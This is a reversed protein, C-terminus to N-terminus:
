GRRRLEITGGTRRAGFGALLAASAHNSTDVEATVQEIGRRALAGFATRLLATALGRRRHWRLVGILGLRPVRAAPWIRVLGAYDDGAVAVLYLEPDFQPAGFTYDRFEAPENVWGETGPVDRRLQEDLRALRELEKEDASVIMPGAAIMPGSGIMPRAVTAPGAAVPIPMAAPGPLAALEPAVPVVLEDERRVEAFGARALLALQDADNEDATSFLPGPVDAIVADFLAATVEERWADAAAFARGDPRRLLHARGVVVDDDLAHWARGPVVRVIGVGV